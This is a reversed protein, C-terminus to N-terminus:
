IIEVNETGFLNLVEVEPVVENKKTIKKKPKGHVKPEPLADKEQLDLFSTLLQTKRESSIAYVQMADGFVEEMFQIFIQELDKQNMEDIIFEDNAHVIVFSPNAAFVETKVLMHALRAYESHVKFRNLDSWAQSIKRRHEKDAAVLLSLLFADDLEAKEDVVEEVIPNSMTQETSIIPEEEPEVTNVVQSDDRTLQTTSVPEIAPVEHEKVPKVHKVTKTEAREMRNTQEHNSMRSILKLLGIELYAHINSANRYKEATDMLDEIMKLILIAPVRNLQKAESESLRLLLKKDSRIRM